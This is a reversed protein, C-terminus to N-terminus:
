QVGSRGDEYGHDYGMSYARNMADMLITTLELDFEEMTYGEEIAQKEFEDMTVDPRKM